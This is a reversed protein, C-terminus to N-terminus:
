HRNLYDFGGATQCDLDLCINTEDVLLHGLAKVVSEYIHTKQNVGRIAPFNM